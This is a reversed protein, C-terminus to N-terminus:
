PNNWMVPECSADSCSTGWVVTEDDDNTGWVVTEDDGTGWVVTEHDSTGYADDNGAAASWRTDGSQCSVTAGVGVFSRALEIARKADLFGAGQTMRDYGPYSQATYRLIAKVQNPTLGPNAQLMLAVTGSVVPAAM